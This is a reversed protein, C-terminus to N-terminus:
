IYRVYITTKDGWADAAQNVPWFAFRELYGPTACRAYIQTYGIERASQVVHAMLWSGLSYSRWEPEVYLAGLWPYLDMRGMFDNTLLGACGVIEEEHVLVYWHPMPSVAYTGYAVCEAYAMVSQGNAWKNQVYAITQAMYEPHERVSLIQM